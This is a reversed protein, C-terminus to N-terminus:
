DRPSPSTYLLCSTDWTGISRNFDSAHKFMFSINSVSSVNWDGIPQNFASASHFMQNMNTVNRVDWGSINDDFNTKGNFANAMDTVGTVNWDRIHGYTAIASAQDSFWLDRATNFNADNLPTQARLSSTAILGFLFWALVAKFLVSSAASSHMKMLFM